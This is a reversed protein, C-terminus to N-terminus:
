QEEKRTGLKKDLFKRVLNSLLNQLYGFNDNGKQTVEFKPIDSKQERSYHEEFNFSITLPSERLIGLFM